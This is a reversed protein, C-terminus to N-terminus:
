VVFKALRSISRQFDVINFFQNGSKIFKKEERSLHPIVELVPINLMNTFEGLNQIEEDWVRNIIVSKKQATPLFKIFDNVRLISSLTPWLVVFSITSLNLMELCVNDYRFPIDAIIFNYNSRALYILSGLMDVDFKDSQSLSLPAQLIDIGNKLSVVSNLLAEDDDSFREIFFGLNPNLSLNLKIALDSPGQCFNLDIILVRVGKLNKMFWALNFALTTKGVGGQVSYFSVVQQALFKCKEEGISDKEKEIREIIKLIQNLDELDKIERVYINGCHMNKAVKDSSGTIILESETNNNIYGVIEEFNTIKSTLVIYSPMYEEIYHFLYEEDRLCVINFRDSKIKSINDIIKKDKEVLLIIKM